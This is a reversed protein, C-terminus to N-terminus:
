KQFRWVLSLKLRLPGFYNIDKTYQYLFHGDIPAYVKDRAHMYGAGIGADLSLRNSIPWMYGVSLGALFGEGRHGKKKDSLDYLGAGAFVGVYMGHWRSRDIAWFRVEPMVTALRYAKHPWNKGYWASQFELAASWRDAFMWEVEVNPMLAAYYLLNTKLVFRDPGATAVPLTPVTESSDSNDSPNSFDSSDSIDSSESQQPAAAPSPAVEKEATPAPQATAQILEQPVVFQVTVFDGQEAHNRTRFCDETLGKRTILESKVRNSRTRAVALNAQEGARSNCYGDVHLPIRRDTIAERYRDVCNFLRTLEAGNNMGPAFFGDKGSFFRFSFVSDAKEQASLPLALVGLLLAVLLLRIHNTKNMVNM